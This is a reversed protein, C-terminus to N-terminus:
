FLEHREEEDWWFDDDMLDYFEDDCENEYPSSSFLPTYNTPQPM